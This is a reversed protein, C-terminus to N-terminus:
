SYIGPSRHARCPLRLSFSVHLPRVGIDEEFSSIEKATAKAVKREENAVRAAEARAEAKRQREAEM